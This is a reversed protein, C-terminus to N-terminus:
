LTICQLKFSRTYGILKVALERVLQLRKETGAKIKVKLKEKHRGQKERHRGAEKAWKVLM